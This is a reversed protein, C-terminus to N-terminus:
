HFHTMFSVALGTFPYYYISYWLKQVTMHTPDGSLHSLFDSIINLLHTKFNLKTGM